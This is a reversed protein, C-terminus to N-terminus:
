ACVIWCTRSDEVSTLQALPLPFLPSLHGRRMPGVLAVHTEVSLQLSGPLGARRTELHNSLPARM